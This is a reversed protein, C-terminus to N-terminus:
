DTGNQMGLLDIGDSVSGVVTMHALFGTARMVNEVVENLSALVLKGNVGSIKRHLLLMIRLGSSSMFEVDAMNLLIKCGQKVVELARNQVIPATSADIEGIINIISIDNHNSIQINM